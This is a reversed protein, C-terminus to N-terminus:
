HINAAHLSVNEKHDSSAGAFDQGMNTVNNNGM